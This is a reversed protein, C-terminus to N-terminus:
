IVYETSGDLRKLFQRTREERPNRFFAEPENEEVVKGDAMFVIRTAVRRAFELEHTVLVMTRGEAALKRIVALVEGVLEPDLASTPEDLYIVEPNAAIARAIGIRQQQGGSLAAPYYDARELMGVEALSHRGIEDAERKSLGRVIRLGATVNELATMNLFLNYNQFVFGTKRRIEAIKAHGVSSLDLRVGDFIMEGSDAREFFDAIRLLTTKGSGSPGLVAVVDGKRVTLDVGKLVPAGGFSKTINKLELM